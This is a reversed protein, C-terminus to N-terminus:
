SGMFIEFSRAPSLASLFIQMCATNMFLISLPGQVGGQIMDKKKKLFNKLECLGNFVFSIHMDCAQGMEVVTHCFGDIPCQDGRRGGVM